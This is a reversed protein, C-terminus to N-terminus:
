DSWSASDPWVLDADYNRKERGVDAASKVPYLLEYGMTRGWGGYPNEIWTECRLFFIGKEDHVGLMIDDAEWVDMGYSREVFRWEVGPFWQPIASAALRKRAAGRERSERRKATSAARRAEEARRERDPREKEALAESAIQAATKSM